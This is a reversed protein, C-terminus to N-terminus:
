RTLPSRQRPVAPTGPTGGSGTPIIRWVRALMACGGWTLARLPLSESGPAVTRQRPRAPYATDAPAQSLRTGHVRGDGHLYYTNDAGGVGVKRSCRDLGPEVAGLVPGDLDVAAVPVPQSSQVAKVIGPQQGPQVLQGLGAAVRREPLNREQQSALLALHAHEGRTPRPPDVRDPEAQDPNEIHGAQDNTEGTNVKEVPRRDNIQLRVHGTEVPRRALRAAAPVVTDRDAIAARGRLEGRAMPRISMGAARVFRVGIVQDVWVSMTWSAADDGLTVHWWRRDAPGRIEPTTTGTLHATTFGDGFVFILPGSASLDAILHELESAPGSIEATKSM